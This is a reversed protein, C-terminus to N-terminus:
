AWGSGRPLCSLHVQQTRGRRVWWRALWHQLSVGSVRPARESSQWSAGNKQWHRGQKTQPLYYKLAIIYGHQLNASSSTHIITICCTQLHTNQMNTDNIGWTELTYLGHGVHVTNDQNYKPYQTNVTTEYSWMGVNCVKPWSIQGAAPQLRM